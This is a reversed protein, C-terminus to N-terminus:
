IPSAILGLIEIRSHIQLDWVRCEFTVHCAFGARKTAPGCKESDYVIVGESKKNAAQVKAGADCSM